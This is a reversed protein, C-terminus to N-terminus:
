KMISNRTPRQGKKGKQWQGKAKKNRCKQRKKMGIRKLISLKEWVDIGYIAVFYKLKPNLFKLIIGIPSMNAHAIYAFNTKSINKLCNSVFITKNKGFGQIKFTQNEANIEHTGKPDNLSLFKYPKNKANAISSLTACAHKNVRQIGGSGLLEGFIGLFM